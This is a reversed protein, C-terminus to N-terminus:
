PRAIRYFTVDELRGIETLIGRRELADIAHYLRDLFARLRPTRAPLLGNEAPDWRRIALTTLGLSRFAALFDEPGQRSQLDGKESSPHIHFYSREILLFPQVNVGIGVRDGERLHTNIWAAVNGYPVEVAQFQAPSLARWLRVEPLHAMAQDVIGGLCVVVGLVLGVGRHWTLRNRMELAARVLQELLVAAFACSLVLLTLVYRPEWFGLFFTVVWLSLLLVAPFTVRRSTGLRAAGIIGPVSLLLPVYGFQEGFKGVFGRWAALSPSFDALGGTLEATLDAQARGYANHGGLLGNWFPFIPNGFELLNRVYWPAAAVAACIAFLLLDRAMARSRHPHLVAAVALSVALCLALQLSSYKIGLAIGLMAGAMALLWTRPRDLYEVCAAVALCQFFANAVDNKAVPVFNTVVSASLVLLAPIASWARGGGLQLFLTSALIAIGLALVVNILKVATAAHFAMWSVTTLLEYNGPFASPPGFDANYFFRGARAYDRPLAVSFAMEDWTHIPVFAALALLPVLPFLLWADQIRWGALGGARRATALAAVSALVLIAFLAVPTLRWVLGVVSGLTMMTGLFAGLALMPALGRGATATGDGAAEPEELTVV